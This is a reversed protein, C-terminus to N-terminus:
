TFNVDDIKLSNEIKNQFKADKRSRKDADTIIMFRYSMPDVPIAGGKVSAVDVSMGADLFDYYPVSLESGFVGTKKGKTEGPKNLIGHSTTIILARKEPLEYSPGNYDPHIGRSKLISPLAMAFIAAIALLIGLGILIKKM